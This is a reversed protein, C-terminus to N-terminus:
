PLIGRRALEERLREPSEFRVADFGLRLAAEINAESDDVFVCAGAPRGTRELLAEFMRPDPKAARVEGSIVIADFWDLWPFRPRALPFTEASWNSLAFLPYGARRLDALVAVTGPIEGAVTEPWREHFARILAERQPFRAVLEEVAEAFPRGTDQRENWERLSVEVFFREMAAEDGSFLKRYLHRPDWDVLVGGLDFVLAPDEPRERTPDTTTRAM